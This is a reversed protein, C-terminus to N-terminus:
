MQNKIDASIRQKKNFKLKNNVLKENAKEFLERDIIKPFVDYVYYQALEGKNTVLKYPFVDPSYKKQLLM